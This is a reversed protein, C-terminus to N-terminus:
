TPIIIEDCSVIKNKYRNKFNAFRKIFQRFIIGEPWINEDLFLPLNQDTVLFTYANYGREKKINFKELEVVEHTKLRIYDVIDTEETDRHVNTIFIRTRRIAARFKTEIDCSVGKKGIYKYTSTNKNKRRTVTHWEYEPNSGQGPKEVMSEMVTDLANDNITTTIMTTNYNSKYIPVHTSVNDSPSMLDHHSIENNITLPYKQSVVVSDNYKKNCVKTTEQKNVISPQENCDNEEILLNRKSANNTTLCIEKEHLMQTRLNELQDVTAYSIKFNEIDNQIKLIDKLLKTCDLHDFTIPPLKELQKAVFVPIDDPDVSKFIMIIDNLDRQEKGKNKRTIKRRDTPLAEFLLSKSKQIEEAKFSSICIQKLTNEDIVSLKNQIYALM